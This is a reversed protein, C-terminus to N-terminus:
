SAASTVRPGTPRTSSGWRTGSPKWPAHIRASWSRASWSRVPAHGLRVHEVGDPRRAPLGSGAAAQRVHGRHAQELHEEGRQLPAGAEVRGHHVVHDDAARALDAVLAAADGTRGHERRAPWRVDGSQGDVPVAGRPDVGDRQRGRQDAGALRIEDHGAADFGHGAHRQEGVPTRQPAVGLHDFPDAADVHSDGGVDHGGLVAVGAGFQVGVPQPALAAGGGRPLVPPEVAGEDEHGLRVEVVVFVDAGVHGLRRHGRQFRREGFEAGGALVGEGEAAEGRSAARRRGDPAPWGPATWGPAPWAAGPAVPAPWGAAPWAAGRRWRRPGGQRPGGQRPAAPRPAAGACWPWM